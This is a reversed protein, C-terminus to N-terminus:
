KGDEAAGGRGLLREVWNKIATMVRRIGDEVKQRLEKIVDKVKDVVGDLGFLASLIAMAVPIAAALARELVNAAAAIIGKILDGIGDLVREIMELIERAKDMIAQFINFVDIVTTIVAMVGTPDLKSAVWALARVVITDELWGVVGDLIMDWISGIASSLRDWISGGEEGQNMLAEFWDWARSIAGIVREIKAKLGRKGTVEELIRLLMDVTIGLIEFALKLMSRFSFDQPMEIGTGELKSFLWSQLGSLLHTGINGFFQEFGVKLARIFNGLFGLPDALIDSLSQAGKAIVRMVLQPPLGLLDLMTSFFTWIAGRLNGDVFIQKLITIAAAQLREWIGEIQQLKQFFPLRSLIQTLFFEKIPEKICDPLMMWLPGMLFDPLQGLLNGFCWCDRGAYRLHAALVGLKHLGESAADLPRDSKIACDHVDNVKSEVWDILGTAMNLIPISRVSAFFQTVSAHIDGITGGVWASAEAIKGRFNELTQQIAPLIQDRLSTQAAVNGVNSADEGMATSTAVVNQLWENITTRLNLIANLPILAQVKAVLARAPEIIPRLEEKVMEWVEGVKKRQAWQILGEEGTEDANLGLVGKVFDWAGGIAERIPSLWNWINRGISQVWNWVHEAKTQLWQLAPLAFSEWINTFFDVAPQFFAVISDWAEGAMKSVLEKLDNVAAFLPECDGAALANVIVRARAVWNGSKPFIEAILGSNNQLGDFIGNIGQLLKTKFFNLIGERRIQEIIAVLNPALPRIQDIILDAAAGVVRGGTADWAAGIGGAVDDLLDPQISASATTIESENAPKRRVEKKRVSAGQQVTHTLEHALLGKGGSSGPDYKGKNFYIDNGHTFAQAGIGESMQVADNGTHVRVGSFDAGFASEMNSRTDKPLAQGGGKSSSLQSELDPSAAPESDSKAQVTNDDPPLAGGEFVPKMEVDLENGQTEEEEKQQLKEEEGCSDCKAQVFPAAMPKSQLAPAEENSEFIAKLQVDEKSQLMEEEEGEKKQLKEEAECDACKAQVSSQGGDATQRGGDVTGRVVRDAMRDAEQEYKDGPKGIALKTQIPPPGSPKHFFPNREAQKESGGFFSQREPADHGEAEKKQFFPQGQGSHDSHSTTTTHKAQVAKM